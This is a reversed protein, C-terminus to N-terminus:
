GRRMFFFPGTEKKKIRKTRKKKEKV